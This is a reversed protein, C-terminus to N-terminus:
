ITGMFAVTDLRRPRLDCLCTYSKLPKFVAISLGPQRLAPPLSNWIKKVLTQSVEIASGLTQEPFSVPESALLAVIVTLSSVLV